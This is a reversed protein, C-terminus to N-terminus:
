TKDYVAWKIKSNLFVAWELEFIAWQDDYRGFVTWLMPSKEFLQDHYQDNRLFSSMSNTMKWFVAWVIAWLFEQRAWKALILLVLAQRTNTMLKLTGTPFLRTRDQRTLEQIPVAILDPVTQYQIGTNWCDRCSPPQFNTHPFINDLEIVVCFKFATDSISFFTIAGM